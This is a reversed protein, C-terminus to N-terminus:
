RQLRRLPSNFIDTATHPRYGGVGIQIAVYRVDHQAFGALAKIRQLLPLNAPALEQVKQSLAPSADRVNSSLQTFWTGLESWNRYSKSPMKDNFFTFVVGGALGGPPHAALSTKLARFTRSRGSCHAM